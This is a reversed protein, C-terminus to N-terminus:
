PSARPLLSLEGTVEWEPVFWRNLPGLGPQIHAVVDGPRLKHRAAANVFEWEWTPGKGIPVPMLECLCYPKIIVHQAPRRCGTKSAGTLPEPWSFYGGFRCHESHILVAYPRCQGLCKVCLDM